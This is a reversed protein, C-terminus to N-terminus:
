KAGSSKQFFSPKPSNWRQTSPCCTHNHEGLKMLLLFPHKIISEVQFNKMLLLDINPKISMLRNKSRLAPVEDFIKVGQEYSLPLLKQIHEVFDHRQRELSDWKVGRVNEQNLLLSTRTRNPWNRFLQFFLNFHKMQQMIWEICAVDSLLSYFTVNWSDCRHLLTMGTCTCPALSNSRLIGSPTVNTSQFFSFVLFFHISHFWSFTCRLCFKTLFTDSPGLESIRSYKSGAVNCRLYSYYRFNAFKNAIAIGNEFYFLSALCTPSWRAVIQQLRIFRTFIPSIRTSARKWM